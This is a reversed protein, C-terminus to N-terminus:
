CATWALDQGAPWQPAVPSVMKPPSTLRARAPFVSSGEIRASVPATSEGLPFLWVWVLRAVCASCNLITFRPFPFSNSSRSLCTQINQAARTMRTLSQECRQALLFDWLKKTAREKKKPLFVFNAIPLSKLNVVSM